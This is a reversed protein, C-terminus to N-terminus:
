KGEIEKFYYGIVFGLPSGIATTVVLLLDKPSVLIDIDKGTFLIILNYIIIFLVMLGILIFYGRIFLIALKSRTEDNHRQHDFKQQYLNTLEKIEPQKFFKDKTKQLIAM